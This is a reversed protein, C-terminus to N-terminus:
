RTCCRCYRTRRQDRGVDTPIGTSCSVLFRIRRFGMAISSGVQLLTILVLAVERFNTRREMMTGRSVRLSGAIDLTEDRSFILFAPEKFFVIGGKLCKGLTKELQFIKKSLVSALPLQSSERLGNQNRRGLSLLLISFQIRAVMACIQGM